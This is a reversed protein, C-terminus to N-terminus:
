LETHGETDPFLYEKVYLGGYAMHRVTVKQLVLIVLDYLRGWLWKRYGGINCTYNVSLVVSNVCYNLQLM